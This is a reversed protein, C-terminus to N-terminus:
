GTAEWVPIKCVHKGKNTVLSIGDNDSKPLLRIHVYEVETLTAFSLHIVMRGERADVLHTEVVDAGAEDELFAFCASTDLVLADAM